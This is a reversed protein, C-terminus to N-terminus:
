QLPSQSESPLHTRTPSATGPMIVGPLNRRAKELCLQQWHVEPPNRHRRTVAPQEGVRRAPKARRPDLSIEDSTVLGRDLLCRLVAMGDRADMISPHVGVISNPGVRYRAQAM